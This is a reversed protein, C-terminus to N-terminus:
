PFLSLRHLKIQDSVHLISLIIMTGTRNWKKKGPLPRNPGVLRWITMKNLIQLSSLIICALYDIFLILGCSKNDNHLKLVWTTLKTYPEAMFGFPLYSYSFEKYACTLNRLERVHSENSLQTKRQKLRVKTEIGWNCLVRFEFKHSKTSDSSKVFRVIHKFIFTFDWM